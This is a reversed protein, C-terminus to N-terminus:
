LSYLSPTQALLALQALLMDFFLIRRNLFPHFLRLNLRRLIARPSIKSLFM